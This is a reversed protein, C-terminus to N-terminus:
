IRRDSGCEPCNGQSARLDYGCEVCQDAKVRDLKLQTRRRLLVNWVLLIEFTLVEAIGARQQTALADSAMFALGIMLAIAIPTPLLFRLRKRLKAEQTHVVSM